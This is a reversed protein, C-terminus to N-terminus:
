LSRGIRGHGHALLVRDSEELGPGRFTYQWTEIASRNGSASIRGAFTVDLTIGSDTVVPEAFLVYVEHVSQVCRTVGPQAHSPAARCLRPRPETALFLDLGRSSRAAALDKEWLNIPGAEAMPRLAVLPDVLVTRGAYEAPMSEIVRAYMTAATAPEVPEQGPLPAVATVFMAVLLIPVIMSWREFTPGTDRYRKTGYMM